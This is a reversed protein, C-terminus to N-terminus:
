IFHFLETRFFQGLYLTALYCFYKELIQGTKVIFIQGLACFMVLNPKWNPLIGLLWACLQWLNESIVDCLQSFHGDLIHQQSGFGCGISCSDRGMVM